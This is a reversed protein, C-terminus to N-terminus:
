NYEGKAKRLDDREKANRQEVYNQFAELTPEFVPAKKEADWVDWNEQQQIADGVIRSAHEPMDKLSAFYQMAEWDDLWFTFVYRGGDWAYVMLPEAGYPTSTTYTLQWQEDEYSM